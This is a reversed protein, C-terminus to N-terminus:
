SPNKITIKYLFDAAENV